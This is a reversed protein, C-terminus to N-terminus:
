VIISSVFSVDFMLIASTCQWINSVMGAMFVIARTPIMFLIIWAISISVFVIVSKHPSAWTFLNRISEVRDLFSGLMNQLWQANSGMGRVTNITNISSGIMGINEKTVSATQIMDQAVVISSEREADTYAGKTMSLILRSSLFIKSRAREIGKDNSQTESNLLNSESLQNSASHTSQFIEDTSNSKTENGDKKNEEVRLSTFEFDSKEPQSGPPQLDMWGEMRNDPCQALYSLPIVAEGICDDFLRNLANHIQIIAAGESLSWPKLIISSSGSEINRKQEVPQLIPYAFNDIDSSCKEAPIWQDAGFLISQLRESEDSPYLSSWIPNSTVNATGTYGLDHKHLVTADFEGDRAKKSATMYYSPDWSVTAYFMGPIGLERTALNSGRQVSVELFSIPRHTTYSTSIKKSAERLTTCESQIWNDTFQGNRRKTWNIIMYLISWFLPLSGVYEMNFTFCSYVFVIFCLGSLPPDKWNTIYKYKEFLM